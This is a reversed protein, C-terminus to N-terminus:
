MTNEQSEIALFISLVTINIALYELGKGSEPKKTFVSKKTLIWFQYPSNSSDNELNVFFGSDPFPRSYKAILFIVKKDMNKAM